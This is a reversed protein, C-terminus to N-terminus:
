SEQAPCLARLRELVGLAAGGDVARAALRAGAALDAAAGVVWLAAGANLLTMDRHPGPEGRLVGLARAVHGSREGGQIAELPARPLGADEPSLVMTRVKGDCVEAARTEAHLAIEDLGGGHVVLARSSGLEALVEAVPVVWRPDYVGLLQFAAGAPNALPGLLNFVTRFGLDQRVAAAHKMSPHLRPAYLFGFGTEDLMRGATEADVDARVGLGELLDASGCRGSVSRNGHKAVSAGAGAAVLAAVTSVNFTGAGDGGTGCTDLLSGRRTPVAVARSRMARAFAAIEGATEGRMRLAVLFAALRGPSVSGDVIAAFATEAEAPTLVAGEIARRLITAFDDTASM